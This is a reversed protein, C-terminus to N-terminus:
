LGIEKLFELAASSAEASVSGSLEWEKRAKRRHEKSLLRFWRRVQMIPLLWPHKQLIPYQFKLAEYPLFIRSCLYKLRGGRSEKHLIVRNELNGYVGGRLIYDETQATLADAAAQELWVCSLKRVVEAFRLLGGEELLRNRKELEATDLRDLLYLDIVPRLGCGGVEFHKAMHAIHYFYFMEDPMEYWYQYGNKVIAVDWVICLIQSANGVKRDDDLSFHLEIHMKNPSFLSVDHSGKGKLTYGYNETLLNVARDLDQERVLVDIDCSTRMWPERYYNRLVSGKLPLFDIEASELARCLKQYDYQLQQYRYVATIMERSLKESWSDRDKILQNSEVALGILHGMDHKIALAALEPLLADNYLAREDEALPRDFMASRLLAFLLRTTNPNM